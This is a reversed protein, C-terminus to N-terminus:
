NYRINTKVSVADIINSISNQITATDEQDKVQGFIHVVGNTTEVHLDYGKSIYGRFSLYEVRGKAKATIFADSLFEKSSKTKLQDTNVDMVSKVSSALEVIKTAQLKTDVKGSLTVVGKKTSVHIKEDPIDKEEILSREVLKTIETDTRTKAFVKPQFLVFTALLLSFLLHRM